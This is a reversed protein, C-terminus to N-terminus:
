GFCKLNHIFNVMVYHGFVNCQWVWGLGDESKMGKPQLKYVPHVFTDIGDHFFQKFMGVFDIGTM